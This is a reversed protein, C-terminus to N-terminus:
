ESLLEGAGFDRAAPKDLWDWLCMPSIGSGPRRPGINEVTFREGKAIPRLAVLSRRAVVINKSESPMPKKIGDGLAATVARIAEIMAALEAPELSARHDPGPLTRDLTYHKEIVTAGLAAAATAIAIGPSHDSLGVPLEFREHLTKMARLNIEEFAAPYETTCHLVAVTGILAQRGADSSFAQKFAAHSPRGEPTLLGFAIVGLADEIEGITSMGTSLLLPLRTRAAELLLQGNTIEGSPIKIRRLGMRGTLFRLSTVDFATSMFEIGRRRCAAAIAQHAHDDLELKRLMELQSGADGTSAKQYDAKQASPSALEDAKFTQFKVADAGADAAVDVLRCALETSGNHNVGAEAIVFIRATEPM